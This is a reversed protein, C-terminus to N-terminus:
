METAATVGLIGLGNRLIQGIADALALRARRPNVGVVPIERLEHGGLGGLHRDAGRAPIWSPKLPFRVALVGLVGLFSVLTKANKANKADQRNM